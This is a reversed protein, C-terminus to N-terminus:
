AAAPAMFHSPNPDAARSPNCPDPFHPYRHARRPLDLPPTPVAAPGVPRYRPHDSSFGPPGPPEPPVPPGTGPLYGVPGSSPSTHSSSLPQPSRPSVRCGGGGPEVHVPHQDVERVVVDVRLLEGVHQLEFARQVGLHTPRARRAGDSLHPRWM